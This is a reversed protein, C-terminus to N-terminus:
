AALAAQRQYLQSATMTAEIMLPPVDHRPSAAHTFHGDPALIYQPTREKPPPMFHRGIFLKLSRRRRISRKKM